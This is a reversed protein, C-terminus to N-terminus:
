GRAIVLARIEKAGAAKLTKACTELTAGSTSVDDILIFRHNDKALELITKGNRAEFCNEVNIKREHWDAIDAQQKEFKIRKILDNRLIAANFYKAIELAILESQNFGRRAQRQRTLPVPVLVAKKFIDDLRNQKIFRFALKGLPVKLSELFNYKLHHIIEKLIKDEYRGVEMFGYLGTKRRCPGCTRADPTRKRCVFCQPSPNVFVSDFCAECIHSVQKVAMEKQCGLCYRPFILDLAFNKVLQWKEM